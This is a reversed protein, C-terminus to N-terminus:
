VNRSWRGVSAGWFFIILLTMEKSVISNSESPVRLGTTGFGHVNYVNHIVAIGIRSIRGSRYYCVESVLIGNVVLVYGYNGYKTRRSSTRANWCQLTATLSDHTM